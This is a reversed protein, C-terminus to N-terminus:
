VSGVVSLIRAMDEVTSAHSLREGRRVGEVNQDLWGGVADESGFEHAHHSLAYYLFGILVAGSTQADKPEQGSAVSRAVDDASVGLIRGLEAPRMGWRSILEGLAEPLLPREDAM